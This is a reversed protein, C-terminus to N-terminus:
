IHEVLEDPFTISHPDIIGWGVAKVVAETRTQSRLRQYILRKRHALANRSIGLKHGIEKHSHTPLLDIVELQKDTFLIRLDM